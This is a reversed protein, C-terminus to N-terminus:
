RKLRHHSHHPPLVPARTMFGDSWIFGRKSYFLPLNEITNDEHGGGVELEITYGHTDALDTLAQLFRSALGQWRAEELVHLTHLEILKKHDNFSVDYELAPHQSSPNQSLLHSLTSLPM